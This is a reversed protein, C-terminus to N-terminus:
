GWCWKFILVVRHRGVGGGGRERDLEPEGALGGCGDPRDIREHHVDQVVGEPAVEGVEGGGDGAGLDVVGARPPREGIAPSHERDRQM